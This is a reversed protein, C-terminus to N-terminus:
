NTENAPHRRQFADTLAVRLSYLVELIADAATDVDDNVQPELEAIRANLWPMFVIHLLSDIKIIAANGDRLDYVAKTQWEAMEPPVRAAVRGAMSNGKGKLPPRGGARKEGRAM